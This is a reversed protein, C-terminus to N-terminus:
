VLGKYLGNKISLETTNQLTKFLFPKILFIKILDAV